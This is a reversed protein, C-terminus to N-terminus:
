NDLDNDQFIRQMTNEAGDCVEYMADKIEATLKKCFADSDTEGLLQVEAREPVNLLKTRMLSFLNGLSHKVDEVLVVKKEALESKVKQENAQYKTLRVKEKKYQVNLEIENIEDENTLVRAGVYDLYRHINEILPYEGRREKTLIGDKVLQQVRRDSLKLFKAIVEASVYNSM